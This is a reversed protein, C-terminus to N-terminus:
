NSSPELLYGQGSSTMMWSNDIEKPLLERHKVYLYKGLYPEDINFQRNRIDSQSFVAVWNPEWSEVHLQVLTKIDAAKDLLNPALNMVVSNTVKTSYVGCRVSLEVSENEHRKNWLNLRFGLENIVSNGVDRRNRGANLLETAQSLSELKVESQAIAKKYTSSLQSWHAFEPRIKSLNKMYILLRTACMDVDEQRAKWYAGITLNLM